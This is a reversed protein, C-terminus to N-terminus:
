VVGSMGRESVDPMGIPMGRLNLESQSELSLVSSDATTSLGITVVCVKDASPLRIQPSTRKRGGM